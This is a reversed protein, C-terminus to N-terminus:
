NVLASVTKLKKKMIPDNFVNEWLQESYKRGNRTANNFDACPGILRGLIGREKMEEPSLKKYQIGENTKMKKLMIKIVELFTTQTNILSNLM